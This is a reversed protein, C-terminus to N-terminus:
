GNDVKRPVFLRSHKAGCHRCEYYQYVEGSYFPFRKEEKVTAMRDMTKCKLCYPRWNIDQEEGTYTPHDEADPKVDDTQAVGQKASEIQKLLETIATCEEQPYTCQLQELERVRSQLFSIDNLKRVVDEVLMTHGDDTIAYYALGVSKIYDYKSM